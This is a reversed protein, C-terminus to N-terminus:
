STLIPEQSLYRSVSIRHQVAQLHHGAESVHAVNLTLTEEKKIDKLAAVGRTSPSSVEIFQAAQLYKYERRWEEILV